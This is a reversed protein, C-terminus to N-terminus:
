VLLGSLQQVLPQKDFMELDLWRDPVDLPRVTTRPAPNGTSPKYVPASNPSSASLRATVGGENHVKILFVSWGQQNLLAPAEGRAVKVRSEPNINVSILVRRDLLEQLKQVALLEDEENMAVDMATQEDPTLAEGLFDLAAVVRKVQAKFPQAPVNSVVEVDALCQHNLAVLVIWVVVVHARSM